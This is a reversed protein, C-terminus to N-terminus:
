LQEGGGLTRADRDGKLVHLPEIRAADAGCSLTRLASRQADVGQVTKVNAPIHVGALIFIDQASTSTEMNSGQECM